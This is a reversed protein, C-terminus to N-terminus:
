RLSPLIRDIGHELFTQVMRATAWKNIGLPPRLDTGTVFHSAM